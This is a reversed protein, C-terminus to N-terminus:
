QLLLDTTTLAVVATYVALSLKRIWRRRGLRRWFAIATEPAFIPLLVITPLGALGAILLFEGGSDRGVILAFVFIVIVTVLACKAFDRWPLLNVSRWPEDRKGISWVLGADVVALLALVVAAAAEGTKPFFAQLHETALAASLAATAVPVMALLVILRARPAASSSNRASSM